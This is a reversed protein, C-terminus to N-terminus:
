LTNKQPRPKLTHCLLQLYEIEGSDGKGIKGLGNIIKM